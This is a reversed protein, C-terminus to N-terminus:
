HSNNKFYPPNVDRGYRNISMVLQNNSGRQPNMSIFKINENGKFNIKKLIADLLKSTFNKPIINYNNPNELKLFCYHFSVPDLNYADEDILMLAQLFNFEVLKSEGPKTFLQREYYYGEEDKSDNNNIDEENNSSNFNDKEIDMENDTNYELYDQYNFISEKKLEKLEQESLEKIFKNLYKPVEKIEDLKQKPYYNFNNKTNISIKRFKDNSDNLFFFYARIYHNLSEHQFIVSNLGMNMLIIIEPNDGTYLHSDKLELSYISSLYVELLCKDTIGYIGKREFPYFKLKNDFLEDLITKNHYFTEYNKFDNHLSQLIKAVNSVCIKKLLSIYKNHYEGFVKNQCLFRQSNNKFLNYDCIKDNENLIHFFTNISYDEQNLNIIENNLCIIIENKKKKTNIKLKSKDFTSFLNINIIDESLFQNYLKTLHIPNKKVNKTYVTSNYSDFIINTFNFVLYKIYEIYEINNPKINYSINKFLNFILPIVDIFDSKINNVKCQILMFLYRYILNINKTCDISIGLNDFDGFYFQNLYFIDKELYKFIKNNEILKIDLYKYLYFLKYDPNKIKTNFQNITRYIEDSEIFDEDSLIRNVFKSYDKKLTKDQNIIIQNYKMKKNTINEIDSIDLTKEYKDFYNRLYYFNYLEIDDLYNKKEYLLKRSNDKRKKVSKKKTKIDEIIHELNDIIFNLFISNFQKSTGDQLILEELCYLARYYEKNKKFEYFDKLVKKTYSENEDLKYESLQYVPKKEQM